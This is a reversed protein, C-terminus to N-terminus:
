GAMTEMRRYADIMRGADRRRAAHLREDDMGLAVARARDELALERLPRSGEALLSARQTPRGGNGAPGAGVGTAELAATFSARGAPPASAAPGAIAREVVSVVGDVVRTAVQLGARLGLALLLPGFSGGIM